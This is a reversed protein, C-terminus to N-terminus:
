RKFLRSFWSRRKTTMSVWSTEQKREKNKSSVVDNKNNQILQPKDALNLQQAQDALKAFKGAYAAIQDDKEDLKKKLYEIELRQQEIEKKLYEVTSFSKKKETNNIKKDQKYKEIITEKYLKRNGKITEPSVDNKSIWKSLTGKSVGIKDALETQSYLKEEQKM